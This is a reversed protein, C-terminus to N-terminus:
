ACRACLGVLDVRHRQTHFGTSRAIQSAATEVSQELGASAPVDEVTGCNACILHHHHETLDEALEFRAFEGDTVIRHVLGAQELVVLNRYVSSQALGRGAPSELLEPITMPRSAGSLADVIARRNATVRQNVRRLRTSVTDHLGEPLAARKSGAM